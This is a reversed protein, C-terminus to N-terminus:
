LGGRRRRSNNSRRKFFIVAAVSTSARTLHFVLRVEESDRLEHDRELAVLRQWQVPTVQSAVPLTALIMRGLEFRVPVRLFNSKADSALRVWSLRWKFKRTPAIGDLIEASDLSVWKSRLVM